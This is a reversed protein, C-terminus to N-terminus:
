KTTGDTREYELKKTAFIFNRDKKMQNVLDNILNKINNDYIDAPFTLLQKPFLTIEVSLFSSKNKQLGSVRLDFDVIYKSHFVDYNISQYIQTKVNRNLSRLKKDFRLNHKPVAWSHLSIYISQPKLANITGYKIIFNKNTSIKVQKGLKVLM